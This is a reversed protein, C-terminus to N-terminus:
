ITYYQSLCTYQINVETPGPVLWNGRKNNVCKRNNSNNNLMCFFPKFWDYWTIFDLGFVVVLSQGSNSQKRSRFWIILTMQFNNLLDKIKNERQQAKNKQKPHLTGNMNITGFRASLHDRVFNSM